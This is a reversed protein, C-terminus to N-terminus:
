RGLNGITVFDLNQEVDIRFLVLHGFFQWHDGFVRPKQCDIFGGPHKDMWYTSSMGAGDDISEM